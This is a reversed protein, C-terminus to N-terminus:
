LVIILTFTYGKMLSVFRLIVNLERQMAHVMIHRIINKDSRRAFHSSGLTYSSYPFAGRGRLWTWASHYSPLPHPPAWTLLFLSKWFTPLQRPVQTFEPIWKESISKSGIYPLKYQEIASSRPSPSTGTDWPDWHLRSRICHSHSLALNLGTISYDQLVWSSWGRFGIM